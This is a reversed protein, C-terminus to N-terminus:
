KTIKQFDPVLCIQSIPPGFADCFAFKVVFLKFCEISLQDILIRFAVIIVFDVFIFSCSCGICPRFRSRQFISDYRRYRHRRRKIPIYRRPIHKHVTSRRRFWQIVALSTPSSPPICFLFVSLKPSRELFGFTMEFPILIVHSWLLHTKM